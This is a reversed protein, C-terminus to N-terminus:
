HRGEHTQINDGRKGGKQMKQAKKFNHFRYRFPKIVPKGEFDVITCNRCLRRLYNICRQRDKKQKLDEKRSM